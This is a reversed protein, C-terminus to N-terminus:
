KRKQKTHNTGDKMASSLIHTTTTICPLGVSSAESGVTALKMALWHWLVTTAVSANYTTGSPASRNLKAHCMSVQTTKQTRWVILLALCDAQAFKNLACVMSGLNRHDAVLRSAPNLQGFVSQALYYNSQQIFHLNGSLVVFM